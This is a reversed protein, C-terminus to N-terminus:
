EIPYDLGQCPKGLLRCMATVQGQHHYLHTQTRLVVHAPILVKTRGGWTLMPRATNLEAPTAGRLYADTAAFVTARLAALASVTPFEHDDDDADLLRCHDLLAALNRHARDHIERLAQATFM